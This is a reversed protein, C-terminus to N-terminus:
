SKLKELENLAFNFEDITDQVINEAPKLENILSAVQGIELEGDQVDGEFMGKKARARGLINKLEDTNAGRDEAEQIKEYFSNKILRVPVHKKLSLKTGGEKLEVIQKKFNEHGSGEYSAAFRSGM